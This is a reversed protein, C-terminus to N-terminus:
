ISHVGIRQSTGPEWKCSDFTLIDKPDSWAVFDPKISIPNWTFSKVKYGGEHKEEEVALSPRDEIDVSYSKAQEYHAAPLTIMALM